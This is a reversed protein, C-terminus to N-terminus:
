GDAHRLRATVGEADQELKEATVPREVSKGYKLLEKDLFHETEAQSIMLPAGFVTDKFGIDQIDIKFVDKKNALMRVGMTVRGLAILEQVIGHRNLLELTRSHLVLARSKDSRTPASDIIRFSINQLALELALMVGTPGAGVILIDVAAM